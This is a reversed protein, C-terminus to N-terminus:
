NRKAPDHRQREKHQHSNDNKDKPRLESEVQISHKSDRKQPTTTSTTTKTSAKQTVVSTSQTPITINQATKPTTTSTVTTTAARPPPATTKQGVSFSIPQTAALITTVATVEPEELTNRPPAISRNHTPADKVLANQNPIAILSGACAVVGIGFATPQFAVKM